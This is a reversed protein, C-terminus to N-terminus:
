ALDLSVRLNMAALESVLYKFVFPLAVREVYKGPPLCFPPGNNKNFLTPPLRRQLPATRARGARAQQPKACAAGKSFAFPTAAAGARAGTDCLRCTVHGRPGFDAAAARAGAADSAAHPVNLTSILLGCNACVDM